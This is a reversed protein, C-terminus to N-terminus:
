VKMNPVFIGQTSVTHWSRSGLDREWPWPWPLSAHIKKTRVMNERDKMQPAEYKAYINRTTLRHTMVKVWLWSELTLTVTSKCPIKSKRVMNENDKTQPAEYKAYINRTTLCHTMVKVWPLSELTLTVISKCPIKKDLGYKGLTENASSWIQCLHEKHPSSADHGQGLPVVKLDLDRYM